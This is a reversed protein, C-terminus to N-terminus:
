KSNKKLLYFSYVALFPLPQLLNHALGVLTLNHNEDHIPGFQTNVTGSRDLHTVIFFQIFVATVSLYFLVKRSKMVRLSILIIIACLIAWILSVLIIYIISTILPVVFLAGIGHVLTQNIFYLFISTIWIWATDKLLNPPDSFFRIKEM